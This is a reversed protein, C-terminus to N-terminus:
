GDDDRRERAEKCARKWATVLFIAAPVETVVLVIVMIIRVPDQM